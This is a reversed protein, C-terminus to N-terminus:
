GIVGRGANTLVLGFANAAADPVLGQFYLGFGALSPTAPMVISWTAAGAAAPAAQLLGLDGVFQACGPM